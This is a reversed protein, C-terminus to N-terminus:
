YKLRFVKLCIIGLIIYPHELLINIGLLTLVTKIM